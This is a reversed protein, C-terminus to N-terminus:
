QFETGGDRLLYADSVIKGIARGGLVASPRETAPRVVLGERINTGAGGVTETGEALALLAATTCTRGGAGYM